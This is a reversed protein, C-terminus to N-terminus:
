FDDYPTKFSDNCEPGDQQLFLPSIQLAINKPRYKQGDDLYYRGFLLIAKALLYFINRSAGTSVMLSHNSQVKPQKKCKCLVTNFKNEKAPGQKAKIQTNTALFTIEKSPCM